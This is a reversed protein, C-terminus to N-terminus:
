SGGAPKEPATLVMSEAKEAVALYDQLQEQLEARKLGETGNTFHSTIVERDVGLRRELYKLVTDYLLPLEEDEETEGQPVSHAAIDGLQFWVDTAILSFLADRVRTKENRVRSRNNFIPELAPYGDNLYLRVKSDNIIELRYLAAAIPDEFKAWKVEIGRGLGQPPEDARFYMPFGTAVRAAKRHAWIGTTSTTSTTLIVFPEIEVDGAVDSRAISFALNATGSDFPSTVAKRWRTSDCKLLLAFSLPADYGPPLVEEKMSKPDDVSVSCELAVETWSEGLSYAELATRKDALKTGQGPLWNSEQPLESSPIIGNMLRANIQLKIVNEKVPYPWITRLESADRRWEM